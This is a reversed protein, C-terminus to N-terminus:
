GGGGQLRETVVAEAAARLAELAGPLRQRARAVDEHNDMWGGRDITRHASLVAQAAEALLLSRAELRDCRACASM